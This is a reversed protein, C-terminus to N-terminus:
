LNKTTLDISLINKDSFDERLVCDFTYWRERKGHGVKNEKKSSIM